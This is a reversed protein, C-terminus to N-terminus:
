FGFLGVSWEWAKQILGKHYSTSEAPKTDKNAINVQDVKVVTNKISNEVPTTTVKKDTIIPVAPKTKIQVVPAITKIPTVICATHETNWEFGQVCSCVETDNGSWTSNSGFNDNCAQAKSVCQYSKNFALDNPCGCIPGGESNTKGTWVLNYITNGLKSKIGEKCFQDNTKAPAPKYNTCKDIVVQQYSKVVISRQTYLSNIYRNASDRADPNSLDMHEMKARYDAINKDITKLGTYQKDIADNVLTVCEQNLSDIKQQMQADQLAKTQTNIANTASDISNILNQNAFPNVDQVYITPQTWAFASMSSIGFILLLIIIFRNKNKM